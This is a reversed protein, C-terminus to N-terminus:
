RGACARRSFDSRVFVLSALGLAVLALTGPVPVAAPALQFDRATAAWIPDAPSTDSILLNGDAAFFMGRPDFKTLGLADRLSAVENGYQDFALIDGLVGGGMGSGQGSVSVLLLQGPIGLVDLFYDDPAMVMQRLGSQGPGGAPDDKLLVTAFPTPTGATSLALIQSTRKGYIDTSNVGDSVLLKDGFSGFDTPTFELGFPTFFTGDARVAIQSNFQTATGDIHSIRWILDNQDSVFLDNGYTAFGAPALLPTTLAGSASSFTRQTGNSDYAVLTQATVVYQASNGGGWGSPLFAGGDIRNNSDTSVPTGFLSPAGGTSPMVWINNTVADPIFYSGSFSGFGAPVLSITEPVVYPGNSFIKIAAAHTSFLLTAVLAAGGIAHKTPHM